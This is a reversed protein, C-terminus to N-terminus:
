NWASSNWASGNWARGNFASGAWGADNWARGTWDAGNWTAGAWDGVNWARGTWTWGNWDGGNWAWGSWTPTDSPGPPWSTGSWLSPNWTSVPGTPSLQVTTGPLAPPLFLPNASGAREAEDLADIVLVLPEDKKRKESAEQFVRNLFLGNEHADEPLALSNM